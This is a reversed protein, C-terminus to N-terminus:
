AEKTASNPTYPPVFISDVPLITHLRMAEGTRTVPSATQQWKALEMERITPSLPEAAPPTIEAAVAAAITETSPNPSPDFPPTNAATAPGIPIGPNVPPAQEFSTPVTQMPPGVLTSLVASMQAAGDVDGTRHAAGISVALQAVLGTLTEIASPPLDDFFKAAAMVPATKSTHVWSWGVGILAVALGTLGEVVSGSVTASVAGHAVLAGALLTLGHRITSNIFPKADDFTM